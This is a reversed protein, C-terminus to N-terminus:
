RRIAVRCLDSLKQRPEPTLGYENISQDLFVELTRKDDDSLERTAHALETNLRSILEPQPEVVFCHSETVALSILLRARTAPDPESWLAVIKRAFHFRGEVPSVRGGYGRAKEDEFEDVSLTALRELAPRLERLDDAWIARFVANMDKNTQLFHPELFAVMRPNFREPDSQALLALASLIGGYNSPHDTSELREAINDFQDIRGRRALAGCAERVVFDEDKKAELIRILAQDVEATPYRLPSDIPVLLDIADSREMWDAKPDGMIGIVTELRAKEDPVQGARRLALLTPITLTDAKEPPHQQAVREARTPDVKVLEAFFQPTWKENGEDIIKELLKAYRGLDVEKLRQFAWQGGDAESTAWAELQDASTSAAVRKRALAVFDRVHDASDNGDDYVAAHSEAELAARKQEIKEAEKADEFGTTSPAAELEADIEEYTRKKPGPPPLAAEIEELRGVSSNLAFTGALRAAEAVLAFSVKEQELSFWNLYRTALDAMRKKDEASYTPVSESREPIEQPYKPELRTWNAGLRGPLVDRMLYSAFSFWTEGEYDGGWQGALDSSQGLSNAHEIVPRNGSRLTIKGRGDGTSFIRDSVAASDAKHEIPHSRVRDLWWIVEAIRRADEYRVPCLRLDFAPQDYVANYFVVGDSSSQAYALYSDEPAVRLLYHTDVAGYCRASIASFAITCRAPPSATEVGDLTIRYSARHADSRNAEVLALAAEKSDSAWFKDPLRNPVRVATERDLDSRSKAM